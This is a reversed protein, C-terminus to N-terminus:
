IASCTRFSISKAVVLPLAFRRSAAPINAGRSEYPDRVQIVHEVSADNLLDIALRRKQQVTQPDTARHITTKAVITESLLCTWKERVSAILAPVTKRLTLSDYEDNNDM